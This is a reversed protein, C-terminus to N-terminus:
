VEHADARKKAADKEADNVSENYKKRAKERDEEADAEAESVSDNYEQQAKLREESAKAQASRTDEIYQKRTEYIKKELTFIEREIKIREESGWKYDKKSLM